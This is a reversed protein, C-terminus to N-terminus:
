EKELAASVGGEGGQAGQVKGCVDALGGRGIPCRLSESCNRLLEEVGDCLCM